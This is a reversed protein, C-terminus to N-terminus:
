LWIERCRVQGNFQSQCPLQVTPGLNYKCKCYKGEGLGIDLMDIDWHQVGHIRQTTGYEYIIDTMEYRPNPAVDRCLYQEGSLFNYSCRLTLLSPLNLLGYFM